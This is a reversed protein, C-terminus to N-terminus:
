YVAQNINRLNKLAVPDWHAIAWDLIESLRCTALEPLPKQNLLKLLRFITLQPNTDDVSKALTQKSLKDGHQDIIIPVHMYQPTPLGLIQQLYIQKATSDLLDVGRVVHNIQQLHDDIVVAFQYAIIQDKRKVVFDGHQEAMNDSISGQLRDQFYILRQDTKIRLAFPRDSPTRRNRCFGPYIDTLLTETTNATLSKRSCTCPYLLQDKNLKSLIDDYVDLSQSQYSVSADWFLGLRELSLLINDAAGQVNRPTDLDDIRLLWKGQHSKADLFSALATYLSGWHL